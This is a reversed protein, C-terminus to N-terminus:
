LAYVTIIVLKGTPSLKLILELRSGDLARGRVRYKRENTIRDKQRELIKGMLVAQEVDHISLRDNLMERRAHLTMVYEKRRIKERFRQIVSELM